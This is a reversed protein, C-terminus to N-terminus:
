KTIKCNRQILATVVDRPRMRHMASYKRLMAIVSVPLELKMKATDSWMEISREKTSPPLHDAERREDITKAVHPLQVNDKRWADYDALAQEGLPDNPHQKEWDRWAKEYARVEEIDDESIHHERGKGFYNIPCKPEQM